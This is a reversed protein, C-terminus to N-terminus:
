SSPTKKFLAFNTFLSLKFFFTCECTDCCYKLWFIAACELSSRFYVNLSPYESTWVIVIGCLKRWRHVSLTFVTQVDYIWVWTIIRSWKSTAVETKVNRWTKPSYAVLKSQWAAHIKMGVHFCCLQHYYNTAISQEKIKQRRCNISMEHLVLLDIKQVVKIM